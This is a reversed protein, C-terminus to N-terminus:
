CSEWAGVLAADKQEPSSLFPRLIQSLITFADARSPSVRETVARKAESSTGFKAAAVEGGCRRM